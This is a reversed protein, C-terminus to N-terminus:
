PPPQSSNPVCTTERDRETEREKGGERGNRGGDRERVCARVCERESARARVCYVCACVNILEQSYKHHANPGADRTDEGKPTHLDGGGGGGCGCLCM